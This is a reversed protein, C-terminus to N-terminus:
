RKTNCAGSSGPRPTSKMWPPGSGWPVTWQGATPVVYRHSPGIALKPANMGWIKLSLLVERWSQTSERAGDEIALFRKKGRATVGVIVLACLKDDEGRLGSHVGDAWIYVIPEDDLEAERWGDYEKAWDRKLRSVTNAPLGKAEPSLLVKLAPAMEGSSIGKLYLWPLAAELTKTRRVYPPM